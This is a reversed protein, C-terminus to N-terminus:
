SVMFAIPPMPRWFTGTGRRKGGGQSILKLGTGDGGEVIYIYM